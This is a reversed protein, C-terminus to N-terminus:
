KPVEIFNSTISYNNYSVFSTEWELAVFMSNLNSNSKSYITPLNYIFSKDGGMQKLFHLVSVTENESRNVLSISIQIFDHNLGDKSRQSYGNGFVNLKIKPKTSTNTSYSPKWWFNPILDGNLLIYGDWKSQLNATTTPNNGINSDIVSYYFRNDSGKAISYKNFTALASWTPVTDYISAM